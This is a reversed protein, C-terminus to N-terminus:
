PRRTVARARGRVGPVQVRSVDSRPEAGARAGRPRTDFARVVAGLSRATAIAALGAVGAGVVLVQAPKVRGAATVQGPIFRGFHSAAELVARYGVLNAMASLVNMKQARTIRPVADMGFVTARRAALMELLPKNQAPWIFSILTAGEKLLEAEHRGLETNAVPPRVKLVVDAERWLTAADPAIKAGAEAYTADTFSAADGAGAQVMVELGLKRLKVVTAPTAAVRRENAYIEKPIGVLM